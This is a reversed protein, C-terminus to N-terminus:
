WLEGINVFLGNSGQEGFGYDIDVNTRSTKNLKVRLGAGWGPQFSQLRHSDLGSFSEANAFVVAGLFGNATLPFRYETEFDVMEDGRFRGQIYGRGTSSYTDWNTSPLDLYPPKGSLVLWDYNWFTIINRSDEPFRFYKRIDIITSQWNSNSGMFRLNNRYTINTYFGKYPNISNDRTDYLANLTFGTSVTTSQPGYREYDDPVPARTNDYTIDYRWDIIYGAGAFFNPTIQRLVIEYFRIYNYQMSDVNGIWSNSGLGFSAQPYKMFHIDGVFNYKNGKSWINTELPVSFQKNETYNASSTITSIRTNVVDTDTRFAANGTFTIAARTTLTYGIAPLGSLALKRVEEETTDPRKKKKFLFHLEDTIDKQPVAKRLHLISDQTRANKAVTLPVNKEVQASLRGASLLLLAILFTRGNPLQKHSKAFSRCIDPFHPYPPRSKWLNAFLAKGHRNMM